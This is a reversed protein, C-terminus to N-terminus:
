RLPRTGVLRLTFWERDERIKLRTTFKGGVSTLTYVIMNTAKSGDDYKATAKGQMVIQGSRITYTGSGSQSKGGIVNKGSGKWTGDANFTIFSAAQAGTDYYRVYNYGVTIRFEQADGSLFPTYAPEGPGSPVEVAGEYLGTAGLASIGQAPSVNSFGVIAALTGLWVLLVRMRYLIDFRATGNLVRTNWTM